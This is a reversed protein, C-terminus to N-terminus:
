LKLVCGMRKDMRWREEASSSLISYPLISGGKEIVGWVGEQKDLLYCMIRLFEMIVICVRAGNEKEELYTVCTTLPDEDKGWM